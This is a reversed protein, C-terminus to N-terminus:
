MIHKFIIYKLYTYFPNPMLCGGIISISYFGVSAFIYKNYMYLSSKANFLSCYNIHWLVWAFWFMYIWYIDIFLIQCKVVKLPQYAM